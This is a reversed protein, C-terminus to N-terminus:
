FRLRATVGYVTLAAPPCDTLLVTLASSAILDEVAFRPTLSLGVGALLTHRLMASNNVCLSGSVEVAM